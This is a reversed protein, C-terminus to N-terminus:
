NISLFLQRLYHKLHYCILYMHVALFGKKTPASYLSSGWGFYL